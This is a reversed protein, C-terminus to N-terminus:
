PISAPMSRFILKPARYYLCVLPVLEDWAHLEVSVGFRTFVEMVVDVVVTAEHSPVRCKTFNGKKTTPLPRLVDIAVRQM